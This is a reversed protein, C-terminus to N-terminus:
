RGQVTRGPLSAAPLAVLRAPVVGGVVVGGLGEVVVAGVIEVIVGGVVRLALLRRDQV